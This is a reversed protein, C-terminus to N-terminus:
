DRAARILLAIALAAGGVAATKQWPSMRGLEVRVRELGQARLPRFEGPPAADRDLARVREGGAWAGQAGRGRAAARRDVAAAARAADRYGVRGDARPALFYVRGGRFVYVYDRADRAERLTASPDERTGRRRVLAEAAREYAARSRAALLAKPLADPSGDMHVTGLSEAVGGRTVFFEATTGM